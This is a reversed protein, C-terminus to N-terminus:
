TLTHGCNNLRVQVWFYITGVGFCLVAGLFHVAIVNTEQFNAVLSLGFCATFGLWVGTKNLSIIRPHASYEDYYQIM